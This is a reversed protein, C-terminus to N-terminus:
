LVIYWTKLWVSGWPMLWPWCSGRWWGGDRGLPQGTSVSKGRVGSGSQNKQRHTGTDTHRFRSFSWPQQLEATSRVVGAPPLLLSVPVHAFLQTKNWPDAASFSFGNIFIKCMYHCAVSDLTGNIDTVIYKPCLLKNKCKFIILGGTM